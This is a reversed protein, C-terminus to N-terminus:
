SKSSSGLKRKQPSRSKWTIRSGKRERSWSRSYRKKRSWTENRSRRHPSRSRQREHRKDKWIQDKQKELRRLEELERYSMRPASHPVHRLIVVARRETIDEPRICHTVEDASFGSMSLVCGRSVPVQALPNSVSIPKFSFKCGFSLSSHSLFSATIIPRDFLQPPDIHSVICGGPLYDNVVASNVWDKPIMSSEEIPKIVLKHIWDPISDM